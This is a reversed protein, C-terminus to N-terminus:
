KKWCCTPSGAPRACNRRGRRGCSVAIRQDGVAAQAAGERDAPGLCRSSGPWGPPWALSMRGSPTPRPSCSSLGVLSARGGTRLSPPWRPRVAAGTRLSSNWVSLRRASSCTQCEICRPPVLNQQLACPLRSLTMVIAVSAMGRAKGKNSPVSYPARNARRRAAPRPRHPREPHRRAFRNSSSM